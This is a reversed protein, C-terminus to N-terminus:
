DNEELPVALESTKELSTGEPAELNVLFSDATNDWMLVFNKINDKALFLSFGLLFIFLALVAYRLPFLKLLLKKYSNSFIEFRNKRKNKIKKSHALHGPLIFVAEMFSLILAASIIVPYVKIFKGMVGGVYLLPLFAAITTLITILVPSLVDTVGKLAAESSKMGQKKFTYVSESIVIGHDVLMGLVTIVAGLTILNLSYDM